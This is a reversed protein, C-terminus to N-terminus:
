SESVQEAGFFSRLDTFGIDEMGNLRNVAAMLATMEQLSLRYVPQTDTFILPADPEEGAHCSQQIYGALTATTDLGGGMASPREARLMAQGLEAVTLSWVCVRGGDLDVWQKRRREEGPAKPKYIPLDSM